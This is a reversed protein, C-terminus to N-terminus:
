RLRREHRRRGRHGADGARGAHGRRSRGAWARCGRRRGSQSGGRARGQRRREGHLHRPLASPVGRFARHRSEQGGPHRRVEPVEAHLRAGEPGGTRDPVGMRLQPLEPVEDPPLIVGQAPPPAPEGARLNCSPDDPLGTVHAVSEPKWREAQPMRRITRVKRATGDADAVWHEASGWWSGLYTVQDWRPEVDGQIRARPRRAMVQEAFEALRPDWSRGRMRRYATMGDQGVQAGTILDAAWMVLWDFIPWSTSVPGIRRTLACMMVRVQDKVDRVAKEVGGNCQHDHPPSHASAVGIDCTRAVEDLVDKLFTRQAPEGYAQLVCKGQGLRRLQDVLWGVAHPDVRGKGKVCRAMVAKCGSVKVVLITRPADEGPTSIFGYDVSVKPLEVGTKARVLRRHPDDPARGSVCDACWSRFPLHTLEHWAREKRSPEGPDPVARVAPDEVEAEEADIPNSEQLRAVGEAAQGAM